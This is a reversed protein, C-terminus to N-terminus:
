VQTCLFVRIIIQSFRNLTYIAVYGYILYSTGPLTYDSCNAPCGTFKIGPVLELYLVQHVTHVFLEAGGIWVKKCRHIHTYRDGNFSHYLLVHLYM